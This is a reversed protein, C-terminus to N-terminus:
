GGDAADQPAVGPTDVLYRRLRRREIAAAEDYLFPLFAYRRGETVPLAEHLLACSFVIAAGSPASYVTPGYEAFRLGGGAYAGANLNITAAFRRYSTGKATSDRHPRFWGGGAADYCAVLFREIRTAEFAFARRIMPALREAIRARIAAKLGEDEVVVDQRRKMRRDMAGYTAGGPAMELFGSDAGGVADYHAILARCLAGEFINPVILVPAHAGVVATADSAMAQRLTAGVMAAHTEPDDFPAVALVRLAPDLLVTARPVPALPVPARPVPADASPGGAGDAPAGFRRALHGEPDWFLTSAPGDLPHPAAPPPAALIGCWLARGPDLDRLTPALADLFRTTAGDGPPGLVTVAVFAGALTAIQYEPLTATVGTVWAVPDGPALRWQFRPPSSAAEAM